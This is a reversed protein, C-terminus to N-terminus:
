KNKQSAIFEAYKKDEILIHNTVWEKLFELIMLASAERNELLKRKFGFITKSFNQHLQRHHDLGHYQAAAMVKEEFIFHFQSYFVLFDFAGELDLSSMGAITSQHLRDVLDFLQQHHKDLEKNGVAYSADWKAFSM